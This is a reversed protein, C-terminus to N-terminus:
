LSYTLVPLPTPGYKSTLRKLTGKCSPFKCPFTSWSLLSFVDDFAEHGRATIEYGHQSNLYSALYKKYYNNPLPCMPPETTSRRGKARAYQSWTSCRAGWLSGAEEEAQIKAKRKTDRM